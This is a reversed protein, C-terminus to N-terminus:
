GEICDDRMMGDEIKNNNLVGLFNNLFNSNKDYISITIVDM